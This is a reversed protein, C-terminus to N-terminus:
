EKYFYVVGDTVSDTNVFTTNETDFEIKFDDTYDLVEFSTGDGCLNINMNEKLTDIDTDCILENPTLFMNCSHKNDKFTIEYIESQFSLKTLDNNYMTYSNSLDICNNNRKIKLFRKISDKIGLYHNQNKM